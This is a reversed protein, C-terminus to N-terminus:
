LEVTSVNVYTGSGTSYMRGLLVGSAHEYNCISCFADSEVYFLDLLDIKNWM